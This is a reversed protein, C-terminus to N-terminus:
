EGIFDKISKIELDFNGDSFQYINIDDSINNMKNVADKINKQFIKSYVKNDAILLIKKSDNKLCYDIAPIISGSTFFLENKNDSMQSSACNYFLEFRSEFKKINRCDNSQM